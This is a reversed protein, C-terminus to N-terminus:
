AHGLRAHRPAPLGDDYAEAPFAARAGRGTGAPDRVGHVVVTDDSQWVSHWPHRSLVYVTRGDLIREEVPGLSGVDLRGRQETLVVRGDSGALDVELVEGTGDEHAPTVRVATVELDGPLADPCSWGEREMWGLVDAETAGTRGAGASRGAEGTVALTTVLQQEAAGRPVPAAHPARGLATLAEAPHTAPAVAPREGLVFLAAVAVGAGVLMGALVRAPSRRHAALDGSLARAPVAFASEGLPM